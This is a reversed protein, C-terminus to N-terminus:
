NVPKSIRDDSSLSLPIYSSYLVNEFTGRICAHTSSLLLGGMSRNRTYAKICVSCVYGLAGACINYADVGM